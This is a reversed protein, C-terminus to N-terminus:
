QYEKDGKSGMCPLHSILSKGVRLPHYEDFTTTIIHSINSSLPFVLFQRDMFYTHVVKIQSLMLYGLPFPFLNHTIFWIPKYITSIFTRHFIYGPIIGIFKYVFQIFLGPLFIPKRCFSFPFKRCPVTPFLHSPGPRAVYRFKPTIRPIPLIGTTYGM